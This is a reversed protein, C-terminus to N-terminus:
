AKAKILAHNLASAFSARDEPNLFSGIVLNKNRSALTMSLIGHEEHRDVEFRTWLPNFLYEKVRGSPDVYEVKLQERCVSIRELKRGDRYNLKFAIWIILVDLGFFLLVPWAGIMLFMLGSVFCTFSIFIMLLVFGQKSLSRHPTLEAVFDPKPNDVESATEIESM